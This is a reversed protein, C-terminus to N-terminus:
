RRPERLKLGTIAVAARRVIASTSSTTSAPASSGSATTVGPDEDIADHAALLREVHRRQAGEAAPPSPLPVELRALAVVPGRPM